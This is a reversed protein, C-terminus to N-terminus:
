QCVSFNIVLKQTFIEKETQFRFFYIGKNLFRVDFGRAFHGWESKKEEYVIRGEMNLIQINGSVMETTEVKFIGNSPNPSIVLFPLDTNEDVNNAQSCNEFYPDFCSVSPPFCVNFNLKKDPCVISYTPYGYFVQGDIVKTIADPAGGEIGACPFGVDFQHKYGNIQNNNDTPSLGLFVVDELGSGQNVYM